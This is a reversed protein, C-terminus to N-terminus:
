KNRILPPESFFTKNAAQEEPTSLYYASEDAYNKFIKSMRADIVYTNSVLDHIARNNNTITLIGSTLFLPIFLGYFNLATEVLSFSLYRLFLQSFKIQYGEKNVVALGTMFKGLSRGHGVILPFIFSPLITGIFASLTLNLMLFDRLPKQANKYVPTKQLDEVAKQYINKWGDNKAVASLGEKFSYTINGAGDDVFSFLSADDGMKLVMTHYDFVVNETYYHSLTYMFGSNENTYFYELRMLYLAENNNITIDETLFATYKQAENTLYLGSKERIDFLAKNRAIGLASNSYIGDTTIFTIFGVIFIIVLDILYAGIRRSFPANVISPYERKPKKQYM